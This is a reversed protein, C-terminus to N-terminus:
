ITAFRFVDDVAIPEAGLPVLTGPGYDRRDRYSGSAPDPNSHVEICRAALNVIWYSAVGARAYGRLYEGSDHHYTTGSVEVLLEVDAPTPTRELYTARPGRLVMLDPQPEFGEALELPSDFDVTWADGPFRALLLERLVRETNIHPRKKPMPEIIEGDWLFEGSGERLFGTEVLRRFEETTWRRRAHAPPSPPPAPPSPTATQQPM